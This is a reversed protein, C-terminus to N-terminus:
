MSVFPGDLVSKTGSGLQTELQTLLKAIQKPKAKSRKTIPKFIGRWRRLWDSAFGFGIRVQYCTNELAQRRSRYKSRTRIPEDSQRRTRHNTVTIVKTKTKRCEISSFRKLNHVKTIEHSLRDRELEVTKLRTRCFFFHGLM